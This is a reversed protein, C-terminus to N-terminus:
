PIYREVLAVPQSGVCYVTFPTLWGDVQKSQEVSNQVYEPFDALKVRRFGNGPDVLVMVDGLRVQEWKVVPNLIPDEENGDSYKPNWTVRDLTVTIGGRSQEDYAVDKVLALYRQEIPKGSEESKQFAWVAEQWLEFTPEPQVPDSEDDTPAVSPTTTPSATVTITVTPTPAGPLAACGTVVLVAALALLPRLDM